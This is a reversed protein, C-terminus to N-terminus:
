PERGPLPRDLRRDRQWAVPDPIGSIGGRAAIRQLAALAKRRRLEDDGEAQQGLGESEAIDLVGALLLELRAARPPPLQSLRQDIREAIASM